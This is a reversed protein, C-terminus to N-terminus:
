NKSPLLNPENLWRLSEAESIDWNNSKDLVYMLLFTDETLDRKLISSHQNYHM